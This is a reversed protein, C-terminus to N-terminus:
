VRSVPDMRMQIPFAIANTREDRDKAGAGRFRRELGTGAPGFLCTGMQLSLAQTMAVCTRLMLPSAVLRTTAGMYEYGYKTAAERSRAFM